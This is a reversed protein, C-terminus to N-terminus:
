KTPERLKARVALAYIVLATLAFAFWQFAYSRHNNPIDAVDPLASPQLGALGSDSILRMRQEGDPGIMGSVQGGKWGGGARPDRSWGIDVRMGPGEMGGTRCDVLHSYGTEGRRNRGGVAKSAVPQLCMGTAHRFLPLDKDGIPRTPWVTPPLGEAATYRALLAEKEHARRLQWFGLGVMVAVAALVLLTPIIPLRRIM